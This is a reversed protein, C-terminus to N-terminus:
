LKVILRNFVASNLDETNLPPFILLIVMLFVIIEDFITKRLPPYPHFFMLPFFLPFCKRLKSITTFTQKLPKRQSLSIIPFLYLHSDHATPLKNTTASFLQSCQSQCFQFSLSFILSTVWIIQLNRNTDLVHWLWCMMGFM